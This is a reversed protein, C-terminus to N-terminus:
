KLTHKGALCLLYASFSLKCVQEKEDVTEMLTTHDIAGLFM